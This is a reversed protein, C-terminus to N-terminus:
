GRQKSFATVDIEAPGRVQSCFSGHERAGTDSSQLELRLGRSAPGPPRTPTARPCRFHPTFHVLCPIRRLIIPLIHPCSLIQLRTNKSRNFANQNIDLEQRENHQLQITCSPTPYVSLVHPSTPLQCPSGLYGFWVLGCDSRRNKM